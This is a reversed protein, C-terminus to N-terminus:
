RHETAPQLVSLTVSHSGMHCTVNRLVSIIKEHLAIDNLWAAALYLPVDYADTLLLMVPSRCYAYLMLGGSPALYAM